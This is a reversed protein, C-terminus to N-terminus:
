SEQGGQCSQSIEAHVMCEPGLPHGLGEYVVSVGINARDQHIAHVPEMMVIAPQQPEDKRLWVEDLWHLWNSHNCLGRHM